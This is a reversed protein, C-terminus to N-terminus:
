ALAAERWLAMAPSLRSPPRTLLVAEGHAQHQWGLVRGLGSRMTLRLGGRVLAAGLHELAVIVAAAAARRAGPAAAVSSLGTGAPSDPDIRAALAVVDRPEALAAIWSVWRRVSTAGARTARATEAASTGGLAVPATAWAVVDLQYQRRPYIGAPYCTFGHRCQSCKAKPLPLEWREFVGALLTAVVPFM